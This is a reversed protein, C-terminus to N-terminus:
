SNLNEWKQSWQNYKKQLFDEWGKQDTTSPFPIPQIVGQSQWVSICEGKYNIKGIRVPRLSYHTEKDIALPGFPTNLNKGVIQTIIKKIQTFAGVSKVANAWLYVNNYGTVASDTLLVSEGFHSKMKELFTKNSMSNISHLYSTVIFDGVMLRFGIDAILEEDVSLSITPIKVSSIGVSRMKNFFYKNSDGNISNIIVDPKSEQILKIAEDIKNSGLPIYAEGVITINNVQAYQRIIEHAAHPFIYDSGILFIKSGINKQAWALAPIIQQSATLGSYIINNSLELGEFQIPYFLLSDFKEILPKVAKRSASTWCGFIANVKHHTLLDYVALGFKHASSQGDAVIAEIQRGLIGGAENIEKVALLTADLVGRETSALSGTISHVVGIRIPESRRYFIIVAILCSIFFPVIVLLLSVKKNVTRQIM